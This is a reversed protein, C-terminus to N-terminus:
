IHCLVHIYHREMPVVLDPSQGNSHRGIGQGSVHPLVIALLGGCLTGTHIPEHSIDVPVQYRMGLLVSKIVFGMHYKPTLPRVKNKTYLCKKM